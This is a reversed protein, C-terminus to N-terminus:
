KNKKVCSCIVYRHTDVNFGVHGRGYCKKCSVKPRVGSQGWNGSVASAQLDDVSGFQKTEGSETNM